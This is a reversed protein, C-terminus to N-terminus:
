WKAKSDTEPASKQTSISTGSLGRRDLSAGPDIKQRFGLLVPGALKVKEGEGQHQNKTCISTGPLGRRDPPAGPDIKQRFGMFVPGFNKLWVAKLYGSLLTESALGVIM